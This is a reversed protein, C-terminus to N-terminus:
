THMTDADSRKNRWTENFHRGVGMPVGPILCSYPVAQHVDHQQTHNKQQKHYSERSFTVGARKFFVINQHACRTVIIRGWVRFVGFFRSFLGFIGSIHATILLNLHLNFINIM